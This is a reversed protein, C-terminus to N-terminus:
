RLAPRTKSRRASRVALVLGCALLVVAGALVPAVPAAGTNVLPASSGGGAPGGGPITGGDEGDGDGGGVPPKADVITARAVSQEGLVTDEAPDSLEVSFVREGQVGERAYTPVTVQIPATEGAEWSVEVAVASSEAYDAGAVASDDRASVSVSASRDEPGSRSVFFVADEGEVVRVDESLEVVVPEVVVEATEVAGIDPAAGLVRAQGRQDFEPTFSTQVGADILPSGPMPMMTLPAFPNGNGALEGLQMEAGSLTMGAGAPLEEGPNTMANNSAHVELEDDAGHGREFTFAPTQGSAIVNNDLRLTHPPVNAAFGDIRAEIGGGVITNHVAVAGHSLGIGVAYPSPSSETIITNNRM